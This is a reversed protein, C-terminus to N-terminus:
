REEIERLDEVLRELEEVERRLDSNEGDLRKAEELSHAIAGVVPTSFAARHFQACAERSALISVLDQVSAGYTEVFRTYTDLRWCAEHGDIVTRFLLPVSSPDDLLASAAARYRDVTRDYEQYRVSVLARTSEGGVERVRLTEQLLRVNARGTGLAAGIGFLLKALRRQDLQWAPDVDGTRVSELQVIFKEDDTTAASAPAQGRVPASGLVVCALALAFPRNLSGRVCRNYPFIRALVHTGVRGLDFRVGSSVVTKVIERRRRM